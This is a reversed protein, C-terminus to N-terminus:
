ETVEGVKKHTTQVIEGTINSRNMESSASRYGRATYYEEVREDKYKEKLKERLATERVVDMREDQLIMNLRIEAEEEQKLKEKNYKNVKLIKKIKERNFKDKNGSIICNIELSDLETEILKSINEDTYKSELFEDIITEFQKDNLKSKLLQNIEIDLIERDISRNIVVDRQKKSLLDLANQFAKVSLSKAEEALQVKDKDTRKQSEVFQSKYIQEIVDVIEAGSLKISKNNEYFENIINTTTDGVPSTIIEKGNVDIESEGTYKFGDKMWLGYKKLCSEIIKKMGDASPYTLYFIEDWRGKRLFEPRLMDLNNATAVLYVLSKREQMWTLFHGVIHTMTQENESEGSGAFAKEIEDIRLVCPQAAEAISLARDFNHESQGMLSGLLNGMDMSFLPLDLISAIAKSTESKGCGPPGVLLIGKPLPMKDNYYTRNDIVGKENRMYRILAEIDGVFNEYHEPVNEVKLLGSDEVLRKKNERFSKIDFERILFPEEGYALLKNIENIRLGKLANILNRKNDEYVIKGRNKFFQKAFKYPKGEPEYRKGYYDSADKIASLGLEEEIDREDPYPPTLIYLCGRLEMPIDVKPSIIIIFSRRDPLKTENQIYFDHLLTTIQAVEESHMEYFFHLGRIILISKTSDGLHPMEKISDCLPEDICEGQCVLSRKGIGPLWIYINEGFNESNPQSLNIGLEEFLCEIRKEETSYDDTEILIISRRQEIATKLKEQYKKLASMKDQKKAM